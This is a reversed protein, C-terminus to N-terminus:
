ITHNLNQVLQNSFATTELEAEDIIVNQLLAGNHQM